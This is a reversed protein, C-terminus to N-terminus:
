PAPLTAHQTCNFQASGPDPSGHARSGTETLAHLNLVSTRASAKCGQAVEKGLPWHVTHPDRAETRNTKVLSGGIMPVQQRSWLRAPTPHVNSGTDLLSNPSRGHQQLGIHARRQNAFVTAPRNLANVMRGIDGHAGPNSTRKKHSASHHM